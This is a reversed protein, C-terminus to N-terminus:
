THRFSEDMLVLISVKKIKLHHQSLIYHRFSEDMLVLISVWFIKGKVDELSSRRFSEDMLVLISVRLWWVYQYYWHLLRFSEDM